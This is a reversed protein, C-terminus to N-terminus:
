PLRIVEGETAATVPVKAGQCSEVIADLADDTRMSDHHFLVVRKAGAEQGLQVAYDITTHGFTKRGEFEAATYQADHLLMDVGDALALAAAHLEGHGEPGPGFNIPSHDSLYALSATGDSVRYGFTRGGKHPIDAATVTFGEIEVTGAELLEICWDGRLEAPTIPFHPPAMLQELVRTGGEQAPIFLRVRAEPRDGAPFFPLGHTHDWHLHSLLISGHFATGEYLRSLRQLGTGADLVLSPLEDDHAVAV